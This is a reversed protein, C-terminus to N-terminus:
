CTAEMAVAHEFREADEVLKFMPDACDAFSCRRINKFGHQVLAETMSPADWMWRHNSTRLLSFVFCFLNRTRKEEGLYTERLFFSNANTDGAGVRALYEGAYWELDPVILRFIGGPKLIRRTNELATHFDDLALHELVHSAYVGRCSQDKVPLGKVIDGYEANAPFRQANKTYLRGLIPMREWKLTISADFNRWEKPATYGCGYQIYM